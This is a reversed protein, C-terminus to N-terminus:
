QLHQIWRTEHGSATDLTCPNSVALSKTPRKIVHHM